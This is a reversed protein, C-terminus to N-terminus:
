ISKLVKRIGRVSTQLLRSKIRNLVELDDVYVVTFGLPTPNVFVDPFGVCVVLDHIIVSKGNLVGSLKRTSSFLVNDSWAFYKFYRASPLSFFKASYKMSLLSAEKSFELNFEKALKEFARNRGGRVFLSILIMLLLIGVFVGAFQLPSEM